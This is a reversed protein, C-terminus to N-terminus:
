RSSMVRHDHSVDILDYSVNFLDHSVCTCTYVIISTFVFKAPENLGLISDSIRM